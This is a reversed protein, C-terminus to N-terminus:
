QTCVKKPQEWQTTYKSNHILGFKEEFIVKSSNSQPQLMGARLKSIIKYVSNCLSIPRYDDMTEPDYKKSILAVFTANLAGLSRSESNGELFWRRTLRLHGLLVIYDMWRYRHEKSEQYVWTFIKIRRKSARSGYEKKESWRNIQPFLIGGETSKRHQM